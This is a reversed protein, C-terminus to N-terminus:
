PYKLRYFQSNTSPSLVVQNQGNTFVPTSTAAVWNTGNLSSIQQLVFGTPPSQWSIILNTGSRAMVVAAPPVSVQFTQTTLNNTSFIDAGGQITVTGSFNTPHASANVAVAFVVDNYNEGPLLIGPVNAFFANTDAALFNTATGNLTIQVSNLFLNTTLSTNALTGTLYIENNTLGSQASPTMSLTLGARMPAAPLLALASVFMFSKLRM